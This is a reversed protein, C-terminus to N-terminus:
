LSPYAKEADFRQNEPEAPEHVACEKRESQVELMGSKM